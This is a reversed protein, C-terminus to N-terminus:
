AIRPVCHIFFGSVKNPTTTTEVNLSVPHLALFSTSGITCDGDDLSWCIFHVPLRGFLLVFWRRALIYFQGMWEESM